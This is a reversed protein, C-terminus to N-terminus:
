IAGRGGARGKMFHFTLIELIKALKLRTWLNHTGPGGVVHQLTHQVRHGSLLVLVRRTGDENQLSKGVTEWIIPLRQKAM